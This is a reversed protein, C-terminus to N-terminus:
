TVLSRWRYGHKSSAKSLAAKGAAPPRIPAPSMSLRASSVEFSRADVPLRDDETFRRDAVLRRELQAARRAFELDDGLGAPM